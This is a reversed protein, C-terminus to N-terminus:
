RTELGPIEKTLLKEFQWHLYTLGAIFSHSKKKRKVCSGFVVSGCIKSGNLVRGVLTGERNQALRQIFLKVYTEISVLLVAFVKGFHKLQAFFLTLNPLWESFGPLM